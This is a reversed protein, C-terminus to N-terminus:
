QIDEDKVVKAPPLPDEFDRKPSYMDKEEDSMKYKFSSIILFAFSLMILIGAIMKGSPDHDHPFFLAFALGIFFLIVFAKRNTLSAQKHRTEPNRRETIEEPLPLGKEMALKREKHLIEIKRTKNFMSFLGIGIAGLVAFIPILLAIIGEM